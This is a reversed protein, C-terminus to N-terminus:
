PKGKIPQHAVVLAHVQEIGHDKLMRAMASLTAGTTCVDDLITVSQIGSNGRWRFRNAMRKLREKRNLGVSSRSYRRRKCHSSLDLNEGKFVDFLFPIHKRGRFFQRFWHSPVCVHGDTEFYLYPIDRCQINRRILNGLAFNGNYKMGHIVSQIVSNYAYLYGAMCINPLSPLWHFKPTLMRECSQCVSGEVPLACFYCLM